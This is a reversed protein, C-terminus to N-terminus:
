WYILIAWIKMLKEELIVLIILEFVHFNTFLFEVSSIIRDFKVEAM